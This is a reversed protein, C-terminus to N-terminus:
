SDATWTELEPPPSRSSKKKSQMTRMDSEIMAATINPQPPPEGLRPENQLKTVALHVTEKRRRALALSSLVLSCYHARCPVACALLSRM